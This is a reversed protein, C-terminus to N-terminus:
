LKRWKEVEEWRARGFWDEVVPPLSAIFADKDRIYDTPDYVTSALVLAVANGSFDQLHRWVNAPIYLGQDARNMRFHHYGHEDLTVVEFSGSVAIILEELTRHAHGGRRAGQIVDHLVFVRHPEFPVDRWEFPTLNGTPDSITPFHILRASM